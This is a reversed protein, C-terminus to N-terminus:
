EQNILMNRYHTVRLNHSVYGHNESPGLRFLHNVSNFFQHTQWPLRNFLWITDPNSSIASSCRFHYNYNMTVITIIRDLHSLFTTVEPMDESMRDPMDEPMRDPLCEPVKDPMGVPMRDPMRDPMDESMDEPMDEPLKDPLDEPMRDPMDEPMRDSMKNPMRDPM